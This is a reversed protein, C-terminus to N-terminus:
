LLGIFSLQRGDHDGGRYSYFHARDCRTCQSFIEINASLIGEKMLLFRAAGKLDLYGRDGKGCSVLSGDIEWAFEQHVEPGVEYCQSCIAPGIVARVHQADAGFGKLAEMGVAIVDGILGRWGGHLAAVLRPSEHYLLIPVCDATRVAIIIKTDQTVLADGELQNRGPLSKESIVQLQSSHIQKLTIIRAEPIRTHRAVHAYDDGVSRTTFGHVLDQYPALSKAELFM